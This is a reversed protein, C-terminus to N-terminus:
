RGEYLRDGLWDHLEPISKIKEATQKVDYEVRHFTVKGPTLVAYSARPDHDRPQGVSGVNIVAKEGDLFNYQYPVVKLYHKLTALEQFPLRRPRATM